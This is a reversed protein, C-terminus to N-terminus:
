RCIRSVDSTLLAVHPFRLRKKDHVLIIGEEEIQMSIKLKNGGTDALEPPVEGDVAKQFASFLLGREISIDGFLTVPHSVEIGVREAIADSLVDNQIQATLRKLVFLAKLRVLDRPSLEM